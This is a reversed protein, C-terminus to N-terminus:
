PVRLEDAVVVVIGPRPSARASRKTAGHRGLDKVMAQGGDGGPKRPATTSPRRASRPRDVEGPDRAPRPSGQAASRARARRKRPWSRPVSGNYVTIETAKDVTGGAHRSSASSRRRRRPSRRPRARRAPAPRARRRRRPRPRDLPDNASTRQRALFLAYAVGIVAAVVVIVALAAAAGRGAPEHPRPACRAPQGRAARRSARRVRGPPHQQEHPAGEARGPTGIRAGRVSGRRRRVAGRALLRESLGPRWRPPAGLPRAPSDPAHAAAAERADPRPRAGRAPRHPRQAAPLLADGVHRVARPGGAGQRGAYKWWQREFALIERERATLEGGPAPEEPLVRAADM